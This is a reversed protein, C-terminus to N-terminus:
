YCSGNPVCFLDPLSLYQISIEGFCLGNNKISTPLGEPESFNYIRVTKGKEDMFILRSYGHRVIAAQFSGYQSLVKYTVSKSHFSGEKMEVQGLYTTHHSTSDQDIDFQEIGLFQDNIYKKFKFNDQCFSQSSIAFFLLLMLFKM